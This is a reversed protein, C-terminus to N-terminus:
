AVKPNIWNYRVDTGSRRFLQIMPCRREVEKSFSEFTEESADTEVIANVHATQFNPNGEIAGNLLVDADLTTTLNFDFNKLEIGMDKAVIQTTVQTCSILAANVYAMPSPYQDAGGFVPAADVNIIHESGELTVDQRVGTGKGNLKFTVMTNESM